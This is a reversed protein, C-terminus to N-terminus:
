KLALKSATIASCIESQKTKNTIWVSTRNTAMFIVSVRGASQIMPFYPEASSPDDPDRHNSHFLRIIHHKMVKYFGANSRCGCLPQFGKFHCILIPFQALYSNFFM